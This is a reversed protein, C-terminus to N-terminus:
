NVGVYVSEGEHDQGLEVCSRGTFIIDDRRCIDWRLVFLALIYFVLRIHLPFESMHTVSDCTCSQVDRHVCSANQM